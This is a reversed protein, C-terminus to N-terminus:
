RKLQVQDSQWFTGDKRILLIQIDPHNKQYKKIKEEGMVFLATALADAKTGEDTIVTVSALNNEAPMGTRADMIHHYLIGQETFNRQYIGSTVVAKDEVQIAGFLSTGDDPDTIGVQFLSGDEKKGMTQVNGGLSLIASTVGKKKWLEMINQSLYGKAVAGLDIEMGKELQIKNDSLCQIKRYDIKKMAAERAAKTPVQQKEKTFGWAKVLPYISIDFAGETEESYKKSQQILEYTEESVTVPNGAAANIKAIDSQANTVSFLRDLRNILQVADKMAEEGQEGYVTLQMITDMAFVERTTKKETNATAKGCGTFLCFVWLLVSGKALLRRGRMREEGEQTCGGFVCM